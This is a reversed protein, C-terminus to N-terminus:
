SKLWEDFEDDTAEYCTFLPESSTDTIETVITRLNRVPASSLSMERLKVATDLVILDRKFRLQRIRRAPFTVLAWLCILLCFPLSILCLIAVFHRRFAFPSPGYWFMKLLSKKGLPTQDRFIDYSRPLRNHPSTVTAPPAYVVCAISALWEGAYRLIDDNTNEYLWKHSPLCIGAVIAFKVFYYFPLHYAFGYLLVIVSDYILVLAMTWFVIFLLILRFHDRAWLRSYTFVAVSVISVQFRIDLFTRHVGLAFSLLSALLNLLLTKMTSVNYLFEQVIYLSSTLFFPLFVLFGWTGGEERARKGFPLARTSSM